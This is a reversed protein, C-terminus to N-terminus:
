TVRFEVTLVAALRFVSGPALPVPVGPTLRTLQGPVSALFTGNTSGLDILSVGDSAVRVYAHRGSIERTPDDLTILAPGEAEFGQPISPMRGLVLSRDLPFVEGRESVLCRLPAQASAHMAQTSGESTMGAVAHGQGPSSGAQSQTVHPAGSGHVHSVAQGQSDALFQPDPKFTRESMSVDGTPTQTTVGEGAAACLHAGHRPEYGDDEGSPATMTLEVQAALVPSSTWPRSQTSGVGARPIRLIVRDAEVARDTWSTGESCAVQSPAGNVWVDVVADGRVILRVEGARVEAVAFHPATSLDTGVLVHLLEQTDNAAAAEKAAAVIPSTAEVATLAWVRSGGVAVARGVFSTATWNAM